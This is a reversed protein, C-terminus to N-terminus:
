KIYIFVINNILIFISSFQLLWLILIFLITTTITNITLGHFSLTKWGSCTGVVELDEYTIGDEGLVSEM